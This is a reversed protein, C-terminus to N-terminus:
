LKIYKTKTENISQIVEESYTDTENKLVERRLDVKRTIDDFHDYIYKHGEERDHGEEIALIKKALGIEKNCEEFNSNINISNM